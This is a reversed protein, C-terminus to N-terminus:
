PEGMAAWRKSSRQMSNRAETFDNLLLGAHLNASNTLARQFNSHLASRTVQWAWASLALGAALVAIPLWRRATKNGM